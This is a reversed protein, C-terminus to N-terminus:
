PSVDEDEEENDDSTQPSKSEEKPNLQYEPITTRKHPLFTLTPLHSNSM